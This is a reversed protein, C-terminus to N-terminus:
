SQAIFSPEYEIHLCREREYISKEYAFVKSYQKKADNRQSPMKFHDEIAAFACKSSLRDDVVGSDM